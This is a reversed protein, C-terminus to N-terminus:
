DSVTFHGTGKGLPTLGYFSWKGATLRVTITRRGVFADTSVRIPHAGAKSLWLGIRRGTDTDTIRYRGSVLASVPAGHFSLAVDGRRAVLAAITGRFPIQPLATGLASLSSPGSAGSAVTSTPTTKAPPATTTTAAAQGALPPPCAGAGGATASTQFWRATYLQQDNRYSYLACPLLVVTAGVLARQEVGTAFSVGPGALDLNGVQSVDNVSIAYSGPPVVPGPLQSGGVDTGDAFTLSLAGDEEDVFGSMTPSVAASTVPQLVLALAFALALCWLGASRAPRSHTRVIAAVEM